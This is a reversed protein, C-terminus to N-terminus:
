GWLMRAREPDVLRTWARDLEEPIEGSRMLTDCTRFYLTRADQTTDRWVRLAAARTRDYRPARLGRLDAMVADYAQKQRVTASAFLSQADEEARMVRFAHEAESEHRRWHNIAYDEPSEVDDAAIEDACNVAGTVIESAPFADHATAGAAANVLTPSVASATQAPLFQNVMMQNSAADTQPYRAIWADGRMVSPRATLKLAEAPLIFSAPLASSFTPDMARATSM